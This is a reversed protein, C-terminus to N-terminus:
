FVSIKLYKKPEKEIKKILSDLHMALSNISKHLSDTTILKGISGEPSQIKILFLKLNEITEKLEAEKVDKSISSINKLTTDLSSAAVNLQSTLLDLNSIIGKIEPTEEKVNLAIYNLNSTTKQIDTLISKIQSKTDDDLIQNVNDITKNLNSIFLSVEDKLPLLQSIIDQSIRGPITDGDKYNETSNGIEIKIAKGGLLDASYIESYSDDPIDYEGSIMMKITYGKTEKNYKIKDISGGKFGNIYVPVSPTLGEVKSFSSYYEKSNNFISGGKLFNIVLFTSVLIIVVFLGIKSEKSIKM